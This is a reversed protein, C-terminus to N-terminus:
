LNRSLLFHQFGLLCALLINTNTKVLIPEMPHIERYEHVELPYTRCHIFAASKM